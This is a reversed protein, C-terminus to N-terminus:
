KQEYDSLYTYRLINSLEYEKSETSHTVPHIIEFLEQALVLQVELVNWM